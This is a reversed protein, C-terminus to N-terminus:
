PALGALPPPELGRTRVLRSKEVGLDPTLQFLLGMQSTGFGPNQYVVGKPFILSQFKVKQEVVKLNKWFQSPNKLSQAFRHAATGVDFGDATMEAGLLMLEETEKRIEELKQKGDDKSVTGDAILDILKSKRVTLKAVQENIRKQDQGAEQQKTGYVDKIVAELLRLRAEIPVVQSLYDAFDQHVDSVKFSKGCRHQGYDHYYDYCGGHGRSRSATMPKKCNPCQAFGRLPYELRLKPRPNTGFTKGALVQQNRLFIELGILPQHTGKAEEHRKKSVVYGAYFKERLMRGIFQKTLKRGKITRLGKRTLKKLIDTQSYIGKSFETLGFVVIPAIEPDPIITGRKANNRIRKYGLPVVWSWYGSDFMAKMGQKVRESKVENDFQATASLVNEMLHGAPTEDLQETASLLRVHYRALAARIAQYDGVNRSFRDLKYVIVADIKGKQKCCFNVMRLFDPRDTTKASEGEDVFVEVVVFGSRAAYERCIKQQNELSFNDVQEKTSVRCYIVANM